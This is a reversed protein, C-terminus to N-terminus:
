VAGQYLSCIGPEHIKDVQKTEAEIVLELQQVAIEVARPLFAIASLFKHPLPDHDTESVCTLM